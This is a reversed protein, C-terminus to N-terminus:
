KQLDLLPRSMAQMLKDWEYKPKWVINGLAIDVVVWPDEQKYEFILKRALAIVPKTDSQNSQYCDEVNLSRNLFCVIVRVYGGASEILQILQETTSFNNCVDEVIAVQDGNEINHRGFVMVSEERNETTALTILKKEAKIVRRDFVSGLTQAFSYGGIPAGCFVDIDSLALKFKKKVQGAFYDLVRPFEDAKAFNVYTDGVWHKQTGDDTNYTGAYGVLPGLRKGGSSKPCEYYGGCRRLTTLPDADVQVRKTNKEVKM